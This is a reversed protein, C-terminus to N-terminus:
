SKVWVSLSERWWFYFKSYKNSESLFKSTKESDLEFGWENMIKIVDDPPLPSVHQPPADAHPPYSNSWTLILYKGTINKLNDLFVHLYKPDVHEAVETCNVLDFKLEGEYPDRIDFINISDRIIANSHDKHYQFYEIGCSDADNSMNYVLHGTACGIDCFNSIEDLSFTAKICEYYEDYPSSDERLEGEPPYMIDINIKGDENFSLKPTRELILNDMSSHSKGIISSIRDNWTLNTEYFEKIM